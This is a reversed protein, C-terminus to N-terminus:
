PAAVTDITIEYGLRANVLKVHAPLGSPGDGDYTATIVGAAGASTSTSTSTFTRETLRGGRWREHIQEGQKNGSREGEGGPPPPGLWDDLVRHIDLLVFNPPFPLDRPIYSTFQINSGTQELLFARSGYPTIGLLTLKGPRKQLVAEFSGGGKASTAKLKQRVTFTGPLADAPPIDAPAPPVLGAPPPPQQQHACAAVGLAAALALLPVAVAVRNMPERETM